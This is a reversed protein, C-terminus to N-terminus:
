FGLLALYWHLMQPGWLFACVAAPVLLTGFPIRSTLTKKTFLLLLLSVFGGAFVALLLGVLVIPFRAAAGLMLMLEVDGFGMWQGRPPFAWTLFLPLAGVAAGLLSGLFYGHISFLPNHSALDLVANSALFIGASWLMLNSIVIYHELDIVFTALGVGAWLLFQFYTFYSVLGQPLLVLWGLLFLLGCAAEIIFYRPSIKTQCSYCRGRLALYSFLPLLEAPSLQHRCQPCHSRGNLPKDEPLRLIVVNLFSGIACGFYFIFFDLLYTM